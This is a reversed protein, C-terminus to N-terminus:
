ASDRFLIKNKPTIDKNEPLANDGKVLKKVIVAAIETWVASIRLGTRCMLM